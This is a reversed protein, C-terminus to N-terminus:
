SPMTVSFSRVVATTFAQLLAVSLRICVVLVPVSLQIADRVVFILNAEIAVLSALVWFMVAVYSSRVVGAILSINFGVMALSVLLLAWSDHYGISVFGIATATTLLGLVLYISGIILSGTRLSFCCCRKALSVELVM